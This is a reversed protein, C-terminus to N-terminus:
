NPPNWVAVLEISKNPMLTSGDVAVGDLLWGGFTHNDRTPPTEPLLGLILAGTPISIPPVASGEEGTDFTIVNFPLWAGAGGLQTQVFRATGVAILRGADDYGLARIITIGQVESFTVNLGDLIPGNPEQLTVKARRDIIRNLFFNPDGNIANTFGSVLADFAHGETLQNYSADFYNYQDEAIKVRRGLFVQVRNEMGPLANSNDYLEEIVSGFTIEFQLTAVVDDRERSRLTQNVTDNANFAGRQIQVSNDASVRVGTLSQFAGTGIVTGRPVRIMDVSITTPVVTPAGIFGRDAIVVRDVTDSNFVWGANNIYLTHDPNFKDVHNALTSPLSDKLTNFDAVNELNRINRITKAVDSRSRSGDLLLVGEFLEELKDGPTSVTNAHVRNFWDFGGPQHLTFSGGLNEYSERIEIRNTASNFWFSYGSVRSVFSFPEDSEQNVIWRIEPAELESVDVDNLIIYSELVTSMNRADTRDNSLRARNIFGATTPILVAALVAIIAIVVIMEVLTFGKHRMSHKM